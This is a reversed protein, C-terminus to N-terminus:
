RRRSKLWGDRHKALKLTIRRQLSGDRWVISVRCRKGPHVNGCASRWRGTLAPASANQSWPQPSSGPMNRAHHTQPFIGFDFGTKAVRM